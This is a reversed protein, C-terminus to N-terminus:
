EGVEVKLTFFEAARTKNGSIVYRYLTKEPLAHNKRM